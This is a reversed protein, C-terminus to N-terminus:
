YQQQHLGWNLRCPSVARTKNLLGPLYRGFHNGVHPCTLVPRLPTSMDGRHSCLCFRCGADLGGLFSAAALRDVVAFLVYFSRDQEEHRAAAAALRRWNMCTRAAARRSCEHGFLDGGHQELAVSRHADRGSFATLPNRCCLFYWWDSLFNTIIGRTLALYDRWHIEERPGELQNMM